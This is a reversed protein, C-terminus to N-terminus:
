IRLGTTAGEADFREGCRPCLLPEVGHARASARLIQDSEEPTLGLAERLKELQAREAPDVRGDELAVDVQNEFTERRLRFHRQLGSALIAAPLAAMGVGVVTICGGFVKGAATVPTVDGYGVTTLTAMAWWMAAPISGFAEPQVEHEFLYIGSAATLMLLMMLFLAAGFIRVEELFVDLLDDLARFYHTLKLVRLLRLVRLFRLDLRVLTHLYFPLIAALDVLAVPTMAYRLRARFPSTGQAAEDEVATWLRLVYEVSFIGVSFLEFYEFLAGYRAALGHVSELAVALVNAAVVVILAIDCALSARDGPRSTELIQFLRQRPSVPM